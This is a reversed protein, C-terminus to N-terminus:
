MIDSPTIIGVLEDNEPPRRRVVLVCGTDLHLDRAPTSDAVATSDRSLLDGLLVGFAASDPPCEDIRVNRLDLPEPQRRARQALSAVRRESIAHWGDRWFIPLHSYANEILADRVMGFTWWPQAVLPGRTMLDEATYKSWDM